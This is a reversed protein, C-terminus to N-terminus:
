TWINLQKVLSQSLVTYSNLILNPYIVIKRMLGLKGMSVTRSVVFGKLNMALSNHLSQLEEKVQLKNNSTGKKFAVTLTTTM